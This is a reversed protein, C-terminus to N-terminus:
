TDSDAKGILYTVFSACAGYMYLADTEDVDAVPNDILPHRIGKEDSSYGYLSNFGSKLGAHIRKKRELQLLARSVSGAEPELVSVVSEVAHVSERISDAWEGRTLKEGAVRLHQRAARFRGANLSEFAKVAVAAEADSAMPVISRDVIRYASRSYQLVHELNEVFNYPCSRHRIVFEVFDFIRIYDQRSFIDKIEEVLDGAKNFFEDAFGNKHLVHWDYLITKWRGKFYPYGGMTPHDIDHQMSEYVLRWALSRLQQSVERIKLQQPLPEAGEAQAFSIRQRDPGDHGAAAAGEGESVGTPEDSM